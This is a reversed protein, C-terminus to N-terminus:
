FVRPKGRAGSAWPLAARGRLHKERWSGAQGVLTFGAQAWARGCTRQSSSGGPRAPRSRGPEQDALSQQALAERAM